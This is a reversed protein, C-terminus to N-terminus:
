RYAPTRPHAPQMSRFTSSSAALPRAAARGYAPTNSSPCAPPCRHASCVGSVPSVCLADQALCWTGKHLEVWEDGDSSGCLSRYLPLIPTLATPSRTHSPCGTNSVRGM